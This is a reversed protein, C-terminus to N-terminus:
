SGEVQARQSRNKPRWIKILIGGLLTLATLIILATRIERTRAYVLLYGLYPVSFSQKGVTGPLAITWPDRAPNADGKTRYALGHDTKAIRIVRHTVLRGPVYPDTFTIIDGVKVTSAPVTKEFVLSGVPMTPVMSGSYVAAPRYGAIYLGAYGVLSLVALGSLLGATWRAIRTLNQM